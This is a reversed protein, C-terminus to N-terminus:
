FNGVRSEMSLRPATRAEFLKLGLCGEKVLVSDRPLPFGQGTDRGREEKSPSLHEYQPLRFCVRPV